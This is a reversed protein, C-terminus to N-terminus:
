KALVLTAPSPTAEFTIETFGAELLWSRYDSERWTAGHKTQLLMMSNFVLPFPPGTRDDNVLFDNIVLTGGPKLAKRFKRFVAINDAPTEQHAMHSYIAVDHEDTGFEITHFDGDVTRLREGVGQEDAAARAIQNVNKWDIQSSRAKPNMGLWIVSYIGSGGGVDLISIPGASALDLKSAATLASPVSLVAIAPVLQEWFPNETVDATDSAVPAGTMVAEPMGAWRGMDAFNFTVYGGTYAPKGEVLFESAEPSNCYNGDILEVLGLGVLGDLLAQAGRESLGALQAVAQKTTAGADLHTFISHIVATALISAGWAGTALQMIGDPSLQTEGM